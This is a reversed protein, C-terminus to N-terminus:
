GRRQLEMRSLNLVMVDQPGASGGLYADGEMRFGAKEYARRAASNRQNVSLALLRVEPHHERLWASLASMARTGLGQGQRERDIFFARLGVSPQGFDRGAVAGPTFDLRFYGVGEEGLRVLMPLSHPDAGADELLGPMEGSFPVQEPHVRLALAAPRVDPTVPQVTLPPVSPPM